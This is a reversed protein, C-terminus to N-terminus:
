CNAPSRDAVQVKQETKIIFVKEHNLMGLQILGIQQLQKLNRTVTERSLNVMSAITQHTPLKGIIQRDQRTGLSRLFYYVRWQSKASLMMVKENTSRLAQTLRQMIQSAFLGNTEILHRVVNPPIRFVWSPQTAVVTASSPIDDLISLEGFFSKEGIFVLGCEQNEIDYTVIKFEGQLVIFIGDSPNGQKIIAEHTPVKYADLWESASQLQEDTLTQLLPMSKLVDIAVQM